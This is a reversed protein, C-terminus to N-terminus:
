FSNEYYYLIDNKFQEKIILMYGGADPYMSKTDIAFNCYNQLQPTIIKDADFIRKERARHLSYWYKPNTKYKIKKEVLEDKFQLLYEYTRPFKQVLIDEPIPETKVKPNIRHPYIIFLTNKPQRYRRINEGKLVPKMIDAELVVEKSIENSYGYFLDGDIHGKMIFKDDGLTILGQYIGEFVDLLKLGQEDIKSIINNQQKSVFSWTTGLDDWKKISFELKSLDKSDVEAYKISENNRSYFFIGTYTTATDFMQNIGFSIVRALGRKKSLFTRIGKGYGVNLFRYPHIYSCIAAPNLLEFAKEVFLVYMDFKGTSTQYRKKLIDAQENDINQIKIYPPNGIVIDFGGNDRFVRPFYLQWLIFPKSSMSKTNYYDEVVSPNGQIQELIIDDYIKQIEQKTEEKENHDKIFFM